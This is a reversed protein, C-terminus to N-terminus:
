TRAQCFSRYVGLAQLPISQPFLDSQYFLKQWVEGVGQPGPDDWGGDPRQTNLLYRVGKQVEPSDGLGAAILATVVLGTITPASEGQGALREDAFSSPTEGWGGDPNQRAMMWGAAKQVWPEDMAQGVDHLGTLVFSTGMLYNVGWREWWSGDPEQQHKLFAIAKQVPEDRVTAGSAAMASLVRGTLGETSPDRTIMPMGMLRTMPDPAMVGPKKGPQGHTWAAWGGDRNQMPAEYAWGRRIADDLGAVPSHGAATGLARLALATTDTDFGLQNGAEFSWGGSRAGDHAPHQWTKPEAEQSQQAVLYRTAAQMRPDDAPVGSQQLMYLNLATDWVESSYPEIEVGGDPAPLKLRDMYGLAKQIRPDALPVGVAHLASAGLLTLMAVGFFDGDPNQHSTLWHEIRRNELKRIPGPRRDADRVGAMAPPMVEMAVNMWAGMRHNMLRGLGPVLGFLLPMPPVKDAPLLGVAALMLKNDLRAHDLGGHADLQRRAAQMQPHDDPIGAAHLGAYALCTADIDGQPATPYPPWTGDPRQQSLIFRAGAAADQPKLAGLQKEVVLFRATDTVGMHNGGAWHGDAHQLSFLHSQAQDIAQDLVPEPPPGVPMTRVPRVVPSLRTTHVPM